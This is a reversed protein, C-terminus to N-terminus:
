EAALLTPAAEAAEVRKTTIKSIRDAHRRVVSISKLAEEAKIRKGTVPDWYRAYLIYAAAFVEQATLERKRAKAVPDVDETFGWGAYFPCGFTKVPLGHLAAEFGALSTMSYVKKAVNFCAHLSAEEPAIFAFHSVDEPNSYHKKRVARSEPHPRYLIISGPNEMAARLVLENGSMPREMGYALSLDDEVQGIVLVCNQRPGLGFHKRLDMDEGLGNYKSVQGSKLEEIMKRARSMLLEDTDFDHTKLIDELESTGSRDFHMAKKDFVLSMPTSKMAGLGFSRIWGDEVFTLPIGADSCIKELAVPYKYSWAFVEINGLNPIEKLLRESVRPSHGLFVVEHDPLYDRMWTKWTSFGVLVAVKKDTKRAEAVRQRLDNLSRVNTLADKVFGRPDSVAKIFKSM